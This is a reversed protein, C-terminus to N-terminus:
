LGVTAGAADGVRDGHVVILDPNKKRIVPCVKLKALTLDMTAELDLNEFTYINKFQCSEIELPTAM